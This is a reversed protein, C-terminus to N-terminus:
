REEAEPRDLPKSRFVFTTGRIDSESRFLRAVAGFFARPRGGTTGRPNSTFERSRELLEESVPNLSVTARVRYGTRATMVAAEGLATDVRGCARLADDILRYTRRRVRVADRIRVYVLEDWVDLRMECSRVRGLVPEGDPGLLLTEILVRSTLGGRLRKRFDETFASTVDYRTAVTRGVVRLSADLPAPDDAHAPRALLTAALWLGAAARGRKAAGWM